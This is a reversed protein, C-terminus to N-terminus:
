GFYNFCEHYKECEKCDTKECDIKWKTKEGEIDYTNEMSFRDDCMIIVRTM